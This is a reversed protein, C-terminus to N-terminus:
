CFSALRHAPALSQFSTLSASSYLSGMSFESATIKSDKFPVFDSNIQFIVACHGTLNLADIFPHIHNELADDIGGDEVDEAHDDEDDEKECLPFSVISLVSIFPVGDEPACALPRSILGVYFLM